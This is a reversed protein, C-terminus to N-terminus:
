LNYVIAVTYTPLAILIFLAIYLLLYGSSTVEDVRSEGNDIFIRNNNLIFYQHSHNQTSFNLLLM